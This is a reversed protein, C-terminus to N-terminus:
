KIEVLNHELGKQLEYIDHAVGLIAKGAETLHLNKCQQNNKELTYELVKKEHQMDENEFNYFTIVCHFIKSRESDTQIDFEDCNRMTDRFFM